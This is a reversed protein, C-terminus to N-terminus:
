AGGASMAHMELRAGRLLYVWALVITGVLPALVEVRDGRRGLGGDDGASRAAAGHATM